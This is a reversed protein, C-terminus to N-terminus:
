LLLLPPSVDEQHMQYILVINCFISSFFGAYWCHIKSDIISLTELLGGRSFPITLPSVKKHSVTNNFFELWFSCSSVLTIWIYILMESNHLQIKACWVITLHQTTYQYSWDFPSTEDVVSTGLRFIFSPDLHFQIMKLTALQAQVPCLAVM